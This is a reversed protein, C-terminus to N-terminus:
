QGNGNRAKLGKGRERPLESLHAAVFGFPPRRSMDVGIESMQQHTPLQSRPRQFLV